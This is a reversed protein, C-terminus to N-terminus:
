SRSPNNLKSNGHKSLALAEDLTLFDGLIRDGFVVRYRNKAGPLVNPRSCIQPKRRRAFIPLQPTKQQFVSNDSPKSAKGPFESKIEPSKASQGPICGELEPNKPSIGGVQQKSAQKSIGQTNPAKELFNSCVAAKPSKGIIETQINPKKNLKPM